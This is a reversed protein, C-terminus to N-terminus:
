PAKPPEVWFKAGNTAIFSRVFQELSTAPRDWDARRDLPLAVVVHGFDAAGPDARVVLLDSDGLFRGVVIDNRLYDRPRARRFAATEGASEHPSLLELGWQGYDADEFLRVAHFNRWLVILDPPMLADIAAPALAPEMTCRVRPSKPEVPRPAAWEKCARGILDVLASSAGPVVYQAAWRKCDQLVGAPDVGSAEVSRGAGDVGRVRYANAAIEEVEFTWGPLEDFTM